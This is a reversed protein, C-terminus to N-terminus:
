GLLLILVFPLCFFVLIILLVPILRSRMSLAALWEAAQVPLGRVRPVPWLLGIAVLNFLLHAFAVTVASAEGTSLAALMATVTTGINAGLTYPLIQILRLVGAGALPIILSTTISSSQVAVTLLLGFAMARGANKFLHADFFHEVKALVISRLIQVILTLMGFTIAVSIILVLIPHHQLWESLLEITPKTAAKLPNGLKMGGMGQFLNSCVGSLKALFGTALELPLLVVVAMWNFVDHITAAAFARRFELTRTIHGLSVLLNTITTGINAGMVM